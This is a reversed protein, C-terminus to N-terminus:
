WLHKGYVVDLAIPGQSVRLARSTQHARNEPRFPNVSAVVITTMHTGKTMTDLRRRYPVVYLAVTYCYRYPCQSPVIAEGSNNCDEWTRTRDRERTELRKGGRVTSHTGLDRKATTYGFTNGAYYVARTNLRFDITIPENRM